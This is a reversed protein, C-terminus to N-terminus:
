TQRNEPKRQPRAIQIASGKPVLRAWEFGVASSTVTGASWSCGTQPELTNVGAISGFDTPSVSYSPCPFDM